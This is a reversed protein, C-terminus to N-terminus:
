HWPLMLLLIHLRMLGQGVVMDHENAEKLLALISISRVAYEILELLLFSLLGGFLHAGLFWAFATGLHSMTILMAGAQVVSVIRAVTM